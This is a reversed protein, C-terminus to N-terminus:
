YLQITIIKLETIIVHNIPVKILIVNLYFMVKIHFFSEIIFMITPPIIYIYIYIGKRYHETLLLYFTKM